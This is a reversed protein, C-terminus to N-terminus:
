IGHEEEKSSIVFQLKFSKAMGTKDIESPLSGDVKIREPLGTWPNTGMNSPLM